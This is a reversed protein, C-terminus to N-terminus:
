DRSQPQVRSPVDFTMDTYDSPIREPPTPYSPYSGLLPQAGMGSLGPLMGPFFERAATTLLYAGGGVLVMSGTRRGM